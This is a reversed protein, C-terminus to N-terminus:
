RAESIGHVTLITSGTGVIFGGIFIIEDKNQAWWSQRSAKLQFRSRETQVYDRWVINFKKKAIKNNFRANWYVNNAWVRLEAANMAKEPTMVYLAEYDGFFVGLDRLMQKQPQNLDSLSIKYVEGEVKKPPEKIDTLKLEPKDPEKFEPGSACGM